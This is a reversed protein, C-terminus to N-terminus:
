RGIKQNGGSSTVSLNDQNKEFPIQHLEAKHRTKQGHATQLSQQEQKKTL